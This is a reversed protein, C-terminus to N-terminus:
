TRSPTRPRDAAPLCLGGARRAEALTARFLREVEHAQATLRGTHPVALHDEETEALLREYDPTRERLVGLQRHAHFVADARRVGAAYEELAAVRAGLSRHARELAEAYPGFVAAVDDPVDRPVIRHHEARTRTLDALRVALRWVEAPLTAANDIADLMGAHHVRSRLVEEAARQARALMERSEADLDGPLVFRDAHAAAVRLRRRAERRAPDGALAHVGSLGAIVAGLAAMGWPGALALTALLFLAVVAVASPRPGARPPVAGARVATLAAPGSRLTEAVGPPLAPDLVLRPFERPPTRADM